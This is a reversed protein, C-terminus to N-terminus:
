KEKRFEPDKRSNPKFYRLIGHTEEMSMRVSPPPRDSPPPPPLVRPLSHNATNSRDILFYRIDQKDIKEVQIEKRALMKSEIKQFKSKPKVAVNKIVWERLSIKFKSLKDENRLAEDLTNFLVGARQVFGERSISLKTKQILIKGCNARLDIGINTRQLRQALYNPKGAKIIKFALVATYYAIM